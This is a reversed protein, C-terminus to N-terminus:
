ATDDTTRATIREHARLHSRLGHGIASGCVRPCRDCLFSGSAAIRDKRAEKAKRKVRSHEFQSMRGAFHM